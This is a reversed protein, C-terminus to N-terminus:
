WLEFKFFMNKFGISNNSENQKQNRHKRNQKISKSKSNRKHSRHFDNSCLQKKEEFLKLNNNKILLHQENQLGVDV